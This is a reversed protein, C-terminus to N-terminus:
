FREKNEDPRRTVVECGSDTIIITHEFHGSLSNDATEITWGDSATKIKYTGLTIMPEIAIVVGPELIWKELEKEYYNTVRPQEHVEHGVGHGVLDRVIGYNGQSKVYKEISAGIDAVTNGPKCVKIGAKLAGRTTKLLKKTKSDISGIPFTIATDTFWGRVREKKNKSGSYVPWEMGIDISFIDSEKLVVDKRAIGHVIGENISACIATPFPIDGAGSVYGKFSPKGGVAKIKEEALESIEWTSVGAKSAKVLESLIRGLIKGGAKIQKLEEKEKIYM